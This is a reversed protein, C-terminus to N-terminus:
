GNSVPKKKKANGKWKEEKWYGRNWGEEWKNVNEKKGRFRSKAADM